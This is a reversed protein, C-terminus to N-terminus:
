GLHADRPTQEFMNDPMHDYNIETSGETRPTTRSLSPDMALPSLGPSPGAGIETLFTSGSLCLTKGDVSPRMHLPNPLPADPMTNGNMVQTISIRGAESEVFRRAENELWLGINPDNCNAHAMLQNKMESIETLLGTYETQLQSNQAELANKTGQLDTVWEKKRQRCKSAAVRNRELFKDRKQDRDSADPPVHTEPAETKPAKKGKRRKPPPPEEPPATSKSSVSKRTRASSESNTRTSSKSASMTSSVSARVKTKLDPRGPIPPAGQVDKLANEIFGPAAKTWSNSEGASLATEPMSSPQSLYQPIGVPGDAVGFPSDIIRDPTELGAAETFFNPPTDM